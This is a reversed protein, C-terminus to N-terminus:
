RALTFAPLGQKPLASTHDELIVRRRLFARWGRPLLAAETVNGMRLNRATLHFNDVGAFENHYTKEVCIERENVALGVLGLVRRVGLDVEEVWMKGVRGKEVRTRGRNKLGM